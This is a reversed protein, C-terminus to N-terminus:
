EVIPLHITFTSGKRPESEVTLRGGMAEVISKALPLGLGTGHIQAATAIPTRYFPEFIHKLEHKEIGIGRDEVAIVIEKKHEPLDKEAASIALWSQEGGYKVGNVILNQLCQSFANFDVMVCPLGLPVQREVTVASARILSATNTLACEILEEVSVAQLHYRHRPKDAASFLLIQEVLETLQQAQNVIAAGYRRVRTKDDVIGDAINQAASVIGTLPTRLEHSVSAVFDMQLQALRRSKRSNLGIVAMTAALVLLVCFNFALNRHYLSAVAAEVSGKRHKAILEWGVDRPSYGIPEIRFPQQMGPQPQSSGTRRGTAPQPPLAVQVPTQTTGIVPIPRGFLNVAADPVIGASLTFAPDSSYIISRKAENEQIVAIEYASLDATGFYRQVLEPFIQNRLTEINLPVVIWAARASQSGNTTDNFIPHVLAPVNQDIMWGSPSGSDSDPFHPPIQRLSNHGQFSSREPHDFESPPPEPRQWSEANPPGYNPPGYNPPGHNPSGDDAFAHDPGRDINAAASGLGPTMPQLKQRLLGLDAPWEAPVFKGTQSDLRFLNSSQDAEPQWVYITSVLSPHVAGRRWREFANAFDQLSAARPEGRHIQLDQCLPALETELGQRMNAVSGELSTLMQQATASSVAKSSEYQLVGLLAFVAMLSCVLAYWKTNEWSPLKMMAYTYGSGDNKPFASCLLELVSEELTANRSSPLCYGFAKV